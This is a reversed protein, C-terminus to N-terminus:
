GRAARTHCSVRRSAHKEVMGAQDQQLDLRRGFRCPSGGHGALVGNM